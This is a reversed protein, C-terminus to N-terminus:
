SQPTEANLVTTKEVEKQGIGRQDCIEQSEILEKLNLEGSSLCYLAVGM